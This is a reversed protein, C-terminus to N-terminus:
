LINKNNVSSFDEISLVQFYILSLSYFSFLFSIVFIYFLESIISYHDDYFGCLIM